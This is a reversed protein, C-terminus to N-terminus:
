RKGIAIFTFATNQENGINLTGGQEVDTTSATFYDAEMATITIVNDSGSANSVSAVVAPPTSFPPRFDVRYIGTNSSESDFGNGSLKTGDADVHGIILRLNETGGVALLEGADGLAINGRVDLLERPNGTGIGVYGTDQKLILRTTSTGGSVTDIMLGEVGDTDDYYIDAGINDSQRFSLRGSPGDPGEAEVLITPDDSGEIHLLESPQDLGIGVNGNDVVTFRTRLPDGETEGQPGISFRNKGNEEEGIVVQVGKGELGPANSDVRQIWLSEEVGNKDRFDLKTGFLKIDGKVRLNGEVWVLDDVSLLGDADLKMDQFSLAQKECTASFSGSSPVPTGRGRLRIVGDAAQVSEAVVGVYVRASRSRKLTAEDTTEKFRGVQSDTGPEWTVYGLPILWRPNDADGPLTQFPISEDCYLPDGSDLHHLAELATVPSAGITLKAHQESRSFDGVEVDFSEQVRAYQETTNCTEFGPPPAGTENQAYRLWVRVPEPDSTAINKFKEPPLKYPALVVV